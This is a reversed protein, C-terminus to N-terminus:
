NSIWTGINEKKVARLLNGPTMLNFVRIPLNNEMCFSVATLDMVKHQGSLIQGYSITNFKNANPNIAPDSDYVGDVKTAKFFCDVKMEVARLASVTDTTFYPHGTGGAFLLVNNQNLYKICNLYNYSEGIGEIAQATIVKSNVDVKKLFEQFLLANIVTALMGMYDGMVRDINQKELLAGRVINGGGIVISVQTGLESIQKIEKALRQIHEFLFSGKSGLSEGSIKILVKKFFDDDAKM